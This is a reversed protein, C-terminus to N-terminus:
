EHIQQEVKSKGRSKYTERAFVAVLVVSVAEITCTVYFPVVLGYNDSVIGLVIPGVIFGADGFCRYLGMAVGHPEGATADSAMALPAQGAGSQGAGLLVAVLSISIYDHSTSFLFTAIIQLTFGILIIPKRGFYDIAYGMPITLFLSTLTAYSLVTGIEVENLGLANNAYLPVLTGRIGTMVFFAIATALCAMIFTRSSLLRMIVPVSFGEGQQTHSKVRKPEQVWLATLVLSVVGAVAYFYFPARLDWISAVLGGVTPGAAGGIMTFAQFYGMIRGRESPRLMDVLLAQRSTMWMASGVGELARYLLFFWFNPATANLVSAVSIVVTGAMMLTKRGARDALVGVPLDAALRGIAYMSIAFAVLTYSVDFSKAYIPLIPSIISMGLFVFFAPVYISLMDRMLSSKQLIAIEEGSKESNDAM